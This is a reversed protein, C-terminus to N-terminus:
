HLHTSWDDPVRGLPGPAPQDLPHARPEALELDTDIFDETAYDWFWSEGPEFSQIVPHGTAAAHQSAHQEPSSDCCGVFGAAILNVRVPALELALAATFPPLVATAASAIGLERRIRRGGTGGMLLLTGGPRIRPAASRAVELAVVVHDGLAQRVQEADM